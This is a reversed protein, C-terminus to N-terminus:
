RRRAVEAVVVDAVDPEVLDVAAHEDRVDAWFLM